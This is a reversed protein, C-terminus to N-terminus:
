SVSSAGADLLIKKGNYQVLISLGWEGQIGDFSKNDVVVTINTEM